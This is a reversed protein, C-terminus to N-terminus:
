NENKAVVSVTYAGNPDDLEQADLRTIILALRDYNTTDLDTLVLEHIGNPRSPIVDPVATVAYPKPHIQDVKWLQVSFQAVESVGEVILMLSQQLINEDLDIEIFDMGFSAPITGEYTLSSGDYVLEAELPPPVYMASPDYYFGGCKTFDMVKCRGDRLHLAYNARAFAILSDDFTEFPGDVQAFTRNLVTEMAPLIDQQYHKTMEVLATQVIHMDNYQEYLFRWYLAADFKYIPDAEMVGYSTNLRQTLFRNASDLYESQLHPQVRHRRVEMNPYQVSPAFKGQAEIFLNMWRNAPYETFLLINRQVLHFFEHSYVAKVADELTRYAQFSNNSSGWWIRCEKTPQNNVGIFQSQTGINDSLAFPGDTIIIEMIHNADWDPHMPNGLGWINFQTHWTETIIPVFQQEIFDTVADPALRNYFDNQGKAFPFLAAYIIRVTYDDLGVDWMDLMVFDPRDSYPNQWLIHGAKDKVRLSYFDSPTTQPNFTWRIVCPNNSLCDRDPYAIRQMKTHPAGTSINEHRSVIELDIEEGATSGTISINLTREPDGTNERGQHLYLV